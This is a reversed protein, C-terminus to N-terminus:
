QALKILGKNFLYTVLILGSQGFTDQIQQLTTQGDLADLIPKAEPKVPILQNRNALLYGFREERLTFNQQPRAHQYLKVHSPQQIPLNHIMPKQMLPDQDQGVHFAMAKCAGRCRTFEACDVCASPILARWQQAAANHWIEEITQNFLNGLIHPAHTCPRVSGFPDITCSTIGAPCSKTPKRDFCSPVCNNFQVRRGEQRLRHVTKAAQRFEAETLNTVPTAPGYYRSFAAFRAGLEQSLAAIAPVDEYNRRTLVTNTNISLGAAAALRITDTVGAFSDVGTFAHHSEPSRGHLSILVGDLNTCAQLLTLTEDRRRWLGNSFLVFPVNLSDILRVLEAFQPHLTPEGGTIRMSIIHPRLQSLLHRWRELSMEGFDRNFVNGCGVCVSNCRSTLELTYTTPTAPIFLKDM